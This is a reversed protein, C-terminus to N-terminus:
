RDKCLFELTRGAFVAFAIPELPLLRLAIEYSRSVSTPLHTFKSGTSPYLYEMSFPQVWTEEDYPDVCAVYEDATRGTHQLVNVEDCSSCLLVQWKYKVGEGWTDEWVISRKGECIIFM